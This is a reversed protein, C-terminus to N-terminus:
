QSSEDRVSNSSCCKYLMYNIGPIDRIGNELCFRLVLDDPDNPSFAMGALKLLEEAEEANLKLGICCRFATMRSPKYGFDTSIKHYTRKDIGAAHYFESTKRYKEQVMRVVESSFSKYEANKKEWAHYTRELARSDYLAMDKEAEKAFKGMDRIAAEPEDQHPLGYRIEPQERISYDVESSPEALPPSVQIGYGIERSSSGTDSLEAPSVPEVPETEEAMLAPALQVASDPCYQILPKYREAVYKLMEPVLSQLAEGRQDRKKRKLWKM